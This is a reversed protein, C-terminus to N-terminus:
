GGYPATQPHWKKQDADFMWVQAICATKQDETLSYWDFYYLMDAHNVGSVPKERGSAFTIYYTTQSGYQVGDDSYYVANRSEPVATMTKEM